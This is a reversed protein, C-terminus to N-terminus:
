REGEEDDSEGQTKAPRRGTDANSGQNTDRTDPQNTNGSASTQPGTMPRNTGSSKAYDPQTAARRDPQDQNGARNTDGKRREPHAQQNHRDLEQAGNFTQGCTTCAYQQNLQKEMPHFINELAM